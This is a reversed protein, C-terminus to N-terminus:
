RLGDIITYSSAGRLAVATTPLVARDTSILSLPRQQCNTPPPACLQPSCISLLSSPSHHEFARAESLSATLQLHQLSSAKTRRAPKAAPRYQVQRFHTKTTFSSAHLDVLWAVWTGILSPPFPCSQSPAVERAPFVQVTPSFPSGPAAVSISRVRAFCPGALRSFRRGLRHKLLLRCCVSCCPQVSCNRREDKMGIKRATGRRLWRRTLADELKGSTSIQCLRSSGKEPDWSCICSVLNGDCFSIYPTSKHM